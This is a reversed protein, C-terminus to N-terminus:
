RSAPPRRGGRGGAPAEDDGGRGGRGGMKERLMADSEKAQKDLMEKAAAKQTDDLLPMATKLSADYNARIDKVVTAVVSMALQARIRDADNMDVGSPKTEGRLSDLQKYLDKNKEKDKADIDKLQKVVDDSLKLDKKKDMLLKVPSTSEVDRNSLKLGMSADKAVKDWEPGKDGAGMKKKGQAMMVSPILLLAAITIRTRYM